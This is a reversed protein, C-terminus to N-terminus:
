PLPRACRVGIESSYASVPVDGVRFSSLFSDKSGGYRGRNARSPTFPLESESPPQLRACDNCPSGYQALWDLTWEARNGALDLPGWRSGGSTLAGVPVIDSGPPCGLDSSRALECNITTPPYLSSPDSWPYIRQQDGGAAAFNWEAETPLFGGDWICFAYAQAWSVGGVPRDESREPDSIETSSTVYYRDWESQEDFLDVNWAPDWGREYTGPAQVDEVGAGARLHRHLGSGAPPRWGAIVAAMFRRFRAVTVEYVDLAFGSVKAPATKELYCSPGFVEGASAAGGPCSQGDYSRFFSGGPVVASACCSGGSWGCVSLGVGDGACSQRPICSPCGPPAPEIAVEESHADGVEAVDEAADNADAQPTATDLISPTDEITGADVVPSAAEPAEPSRDSAADEGGKLLAKSGCGGLLVVVCTLSAFRM